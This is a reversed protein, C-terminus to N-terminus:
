FHYAFLYIDLCLRIVLTGGRLAQLGGTSGVAKQSTCFNHVARSIMLKSRHDLESRSITRTFAWTSLSLDSILINDPELICDECVTKMDVGEELKLMVSNIGNELYSWRNLTLRYSTPSRRIKLYARTKSM